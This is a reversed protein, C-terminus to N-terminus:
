SSRCNERKFLFTVDTLTWPGLPGDSWNRYCSALIEVGAQIPHQDMAPNVVLM